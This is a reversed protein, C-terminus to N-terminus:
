VSQNSSSALHQLKACQQGDLKAALTKGAQRGAQQVEDDQQAATQAIIDVASEARRAKEEM